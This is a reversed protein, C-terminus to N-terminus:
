LKIDKLLDKLSTTAKGTEKYNYMERDEKSFRPERDPRPERQEKREPAETLARISLSIKGDKVGIIKVHVKEGESLVDAPKEVRKHAIQSVHLLGSLGNDLKIFAGYDKLTEVTGDAEQGVEVSNIMNAKEERAKRRAVEKGSLVLKKDKKDATIVQVDITKGKYDELNEVYGAALKSAPIFARVEDVFAVVGAKVVSDITVPFVTKEELMTEFKDWVPDDTPPGQKISAELEAKYDEMSEAPAAEEAAKEEAPAEVAAPTEEAPTEVAEVAEEAEAVKNTMEESM